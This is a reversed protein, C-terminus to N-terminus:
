GDGPARRQSRRRYLRETFGGQKEFADAQSEMQRGILYVCLNLLSLAGNAACLPPSRAALVCRRVRVAVPAPHLGTRRGHEDTNKRM